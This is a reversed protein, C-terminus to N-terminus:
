KVENGLEYIHVNSYYELASQGKFKSMAESLSNLIVVCNRRAYEDYYTVVYRM